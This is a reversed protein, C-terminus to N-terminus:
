YLYGLLLTLTANRVDDGDGQGDISVLGLDARFELSVAGWPPFSFLTGLGLILGLDTSRYDNTTDITDGFRNRFEVQRLFGVEPGVLFYPSVSESLDYESRILLGAQLYRMSTSAGIDEGNIEIKSGKMAYVFEPQIVLHFPAIGLELLTSLDLTTLLGASFGSKPVAEEGPLGENADGGVWDVLGGGVFGGFRLAAGNDQPQEAYAHPLSGLCILAICRACLRMINSM